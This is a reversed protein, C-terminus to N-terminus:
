RSSVRQNSKTKKNKSAQKIKERDNIKNQKIFSINNSTPFM